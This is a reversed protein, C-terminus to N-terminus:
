FHLFGRQCLLGCVTCSSILQCVFQSVSQSKRKCHHFSWQGDYHVLAANLAVNASLHGFLKYDASATCVQRWVAQLRGGPCMKVEDESCANFLCSPYVYVLIPNYQVLTTSICVCAYFQMACATSICVYRFSLADHNSAEGKPEDIVRLIYVKQTMNCCHIIQICYHFYRVRKHKVLEWM